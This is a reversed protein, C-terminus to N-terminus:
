PLGPSRQGALNALQERALGAIPPLARARAAGSAGYSQRGNSSAVLM